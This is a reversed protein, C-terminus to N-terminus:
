NALKFINEMLFTTVVLFEYKAYNKRPTELSKCLIVNLNQCKNYKELNAVKGNGM